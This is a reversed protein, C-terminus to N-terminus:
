VTERLMPVFHVAEGRSEKFGDSTRDAIVLRQQQKTGVPGVLRGKLAVQPLLPFPM